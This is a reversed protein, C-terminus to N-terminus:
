QVGGPQIVITTKSNPSPASIVTQKTVNYEIHQGRFSNGEQTVLADGLLLVVNNIPDYQITKASAHLVNSGEKPLTTYQALNGQAIMKQIKSSRPDKYVTLRDALLHSTGQDFKVHGIYVTTGTKQEYQVQDAEIYTPKSRDSPLPWCIGSPVLCALLLVKNIQRLKM